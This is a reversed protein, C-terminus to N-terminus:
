RGGVHFAVVTAAGEDLDAWDGDYSFVAVAGTPFGAAVANGAESDGEGDDLLAALSGMTPNHGVVMLTAVSEPTERILDLASTPGVEYLTDELRPDLDWGAGENVAEWTQTARVAASVLAEDPEVGRQALWQGAETAEAIGGETLKREFDSPGSQEAKAHRILVLTKM